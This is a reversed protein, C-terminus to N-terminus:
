GPMRGPSECFKTFYAEPALDRFLSLIEERAPNSEPLDCVFDLPTDDCNDRAGVDAGADLLREVEALDGNRVTNFLVISMFPTKNTM